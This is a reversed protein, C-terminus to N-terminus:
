HKLTIFSFLRDFLQKKKIRKILNFLKTSQYRIACTQNFINHFNKLHIPIHTFIFSNNWRAPRSFIACFNVVWVWYFGIKIIGVFHVCIERYNANAIKLKCSYQWKDSLRIHILHTKQIKLTRRRRHTWLAPCLINVRNYANYIFRFFENMNRNHIVKRQSKICRLGLVYFRFYAFENNM